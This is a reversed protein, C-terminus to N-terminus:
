LLLHIIDPLIDSLLLTLIIRLQPSNDCITLIPDSLGLLSPIVEVITDEEIIFLLLIDKASDKIIQVFWQFLEVLRLFIQIQFALITIEPATM